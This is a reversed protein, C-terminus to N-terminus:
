GVAYFVTIYTVPVSPWTPDLSAMVSSSQLVRVIQPGRLPDGHLFKNLEEVGRGEDNSRIEFVKAQERM